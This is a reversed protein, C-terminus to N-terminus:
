VANWLGVAIAVALSVRTLVTTRRDDITRAVREGVANGLLLGVAVAVMLPLQELAAMGAAAYTSTRVLQVVLAGTAATAVFSRGTLGASLLTPPLMVGGGGCAAALFGVLAGGPTLARRGLDSPILGLLQVLALALGGLLALALVSESLMSALLGGLITGPVAGIVFRRAAVRDVHERYLVVRHVHGIALGPSVVVMAGAPGLLPALMVTLLMGGGVGTVTTLLGAAGGILGCILLLSATTMSRLHDQATDEDL